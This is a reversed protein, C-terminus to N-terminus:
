PKLKDYKLLDYTLIMNKLRKLYEERLQSYNIYQDYLDLGDIDDAKTERLMARKERLADYAWGSNINIMYGRIAHQLSDFIKIRHKSGENRNKPVLGKGSYTWQGFINNAEKVFRSKGWGSELAAQALIISTPIIDIKTLYEDLNYLDEIKYQKKLKLLEFSALGDHRFGVLQANVHFYRKIFDRQKLIREKEQEIMPALTEFFVRKQKKIDKIKYYSEPLGFAELSITLFFTILSLRITIGTKYV